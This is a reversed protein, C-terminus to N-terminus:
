QSCIDFSPFNHPHSETMSYCAAGRDTWQSMCELGIFVVTCYRINGLISDESLRPEEAAFIGNRFASNMFLSQLASNAYCTAGLNNLGVPQAGAQADCIAEHRAVTLCQRLLLQNFHQSAVAADAAM